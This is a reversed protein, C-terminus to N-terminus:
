ANLRDLQEQTKRCIRQIKNNLQNEKMQCQIRQVKKQIKRCFEEISVADHVAKLNPMNQCNGTNVESDMFSSFRLFKQEIRGKIRIALRSDPIDGIDDILDSVSQQIENNEGQQPGSIFNVVPADAGGDFENHM